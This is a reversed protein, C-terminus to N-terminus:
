FAPPLILEIAEDLQCSFFVGPVIIVEGPMAVVYAGAPLRLRLSCSCVTLFLMFLYNYNLWALRWDARLLMRWDGRFTPPVLGGVM